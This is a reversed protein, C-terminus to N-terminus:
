AYQRRKGLIRDQVAVGVAVSFHIHRVDIQHLPVYVAIRLRYVAYAEGFGVDIHVFNHVLNVQRKDFLVKGAVDLQRVIKTGDAKICVASFCELRDPDASVIGNHLLDGRGALLSFDKDAPLRRVAGVKVLGLGNCPIHGQIGLIHRNLRRLLNVNIGKGQRVLSGIQFDADGSRVFRGILNLLGNGQQGLVTRIRHIEDNNVIAATKGNTRVAAEARAAGILQRQPVAQGKRAPVGTVTGHCQGKGLFLLVGDREVGVHHKNLIGVVVRIIDIHRIRAPLTHRDQLNGDIGVAGGLDRGSTHM